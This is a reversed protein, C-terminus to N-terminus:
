ALGDRGEEGPGPPLYSAFVDGVVAATAALRADATVIYRETVQVSSHGLLRSVDSLSRQQAALTAFTRRLDHIWLGDIGAQALVRRFARSPRTMHGDGRGPFLWANRQHERLQALIGIAAPSLPVLRSRGNKTDPLRLLNRAFDVDEWRASLAESLRMGTVLLLYVLARVLPPADGLADFFAPYEDERLIRGRHNREQFLSLGLTPNVQLVGHQCARKFIVKLLAIIRNITAAAYGAAALGDIFRQLEALTISGLAREGLTPRIHRNFRSLTSRWSRQAHQIALLHSRDFFEGLVVALVRPDVGQALLEQYQAAQFVAM